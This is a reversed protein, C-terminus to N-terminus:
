KFHLYKNNVTIKRMLPDSPTEEKYDGEINFIESIHHNEIKREAVNKDSVTICMKAFHNLKGCKSCIKQYAPCNRRSHTRGCRTCDIKKDNFRLSQYNKTINQDLTTFTM